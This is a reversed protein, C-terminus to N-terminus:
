THPFTDTANLGVKKFNFTYKVWFWHLPRFIGLNHLHGSGLGGRPPDPPPPHRRFKLKPSTYYFIHQKGMIAM